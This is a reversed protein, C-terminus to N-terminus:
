SQSLLALLQNQSQCFEENEILVSCPNLLMWAAHQGYGAPRRARFYSNQAGADLGQGAM